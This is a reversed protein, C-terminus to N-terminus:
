AVAIHTDHTVADRANSQRAGTSPPFRLGEVCPQAAGNKATTANNAIQRISNQFTVNQSEMIM